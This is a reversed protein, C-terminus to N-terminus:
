WLAWIGDLPGRFRGPRTRFLHISTHTYAPPSLTHHADIRPTRFIGFFFIGAQAMHIVPKEGTNRRVDCM